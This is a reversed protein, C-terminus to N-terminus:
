VIRGPAFINQPDFASKLRRMQALGPVMEARSNAPRRSSTPMVVRKSGFNTREKLRRPAFLLSAHGGAALVLDLIQAASQSFRAATDEKESAPLLAFYITGGARAVLARPLTAREAIHQLNTFLVAHHSPLVSIKFIAATPSAELLM